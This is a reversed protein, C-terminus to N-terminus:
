QKQIEGSQLMGQEVYDFWNGILRIMHDAITHSVNDEDFAESLEFSCKGSPYVKISVSVQSSVQEHSDTTTTTTKNEENM